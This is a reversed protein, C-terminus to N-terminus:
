TLLHAADDLDAKVRIMFHKLRLMIMMHTPTSCRRFRGKCTDYLTKSTANLTEHHKSYKTSHQVFCIISNCAAYFTTRQVSHQSSSLINRTAHLTEYQFPRLTNRSTYFIAHLMTLQKRRQINIANNYTSQQM